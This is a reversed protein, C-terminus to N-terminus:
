AAESPHQVVAGSPPIGVKGSLFPATPRSLHRRLVFVTAALLLLEAWVYAGYVQALKAAHKGLGLGSTLSTSTTSMLLFSGALVVGLMFRHGRPMPWATMLYCLLGIPLVLTVCHHKWTRESFLLMGLIVLAYEAALRTQTRPLLDARSSWFLLALFGLGLVKVLLRASEPSWSVLNHYAVPQDDEDYFSPSTTTLRYVLGVLSQNHHETTVEGHVTFPLIMKDIWSRTITATHEFGLVSGPILGFFLVLGAACGLLTRRARKWLFYPVFLAPTVKCTIALALVLGALFDRSHRFLYLAAVVLFLILLNVNGHSLDGIIPRLCLLVLVVRGVLPFPIGPEQVLRITWIVALCAMGVKLAFWTLAGVDVTVPGVQGRPLEALPYLLLGMMPANPYIYKQYVDEGQVLERVQRRWRNFASRDEGSKEVYQITVALLVCVLGASMLRVAGRTWGSQTPDLHIPQNMGQSTM